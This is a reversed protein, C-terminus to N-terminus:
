GATYNCCVDNSPQHILTQKQLVSSGFSFLEVTACSVGWILMTRACSCGAVIPIQTFIYKTIDPILSLLSLWHDVRVEDPFFPSIVAFSATASFYVLCLSVLTLKRRTSGLIKVDKKIETDRHVVTGTTGWAQTSDVSEDDSDRDGFHEYSTVSAQRSLSRSRQRSISPKRIGSMEWSKQLQVAARKCAFAGGNRAGTGGRWIQTPSKTYAVCLVGANPGTVRQDWKQEPM